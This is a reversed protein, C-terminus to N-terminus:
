FTFELVPFENSGFVPLETIGDDRNYEAFWTVLEQVNPIVNTPTLSFPHTEGSNKDVKCAGLDFGGDVANLDFYCRSRDTFNTGVFAGIFVIRSPRVRRLTDDDDRTMTAGSMPDRTGLLVRVKRVLLSPSFNDALVGQDSSVRGQYRLPSDAQKTMDLTFKDPSQESIVRTKLTLTAPTNHLDPGVVRNTLQYTMRDEAAVNVFPLDSGRCGTWLNSFTQLTSRNGVQDIKDLSAFDGLSPAYGVKANRALDEGTCHPHCVTCEQCPPGNYQPCSETGSARIKITLEDWGFVLGLDDSSALWIQKAAILGRDIRLKSDLVKGDFTTEDFLQGTPSQDVQVSGQPVCSISVIALGVALALAGPGRHKSRTGQTM